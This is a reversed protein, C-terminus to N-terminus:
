RPEVFVAATLPPVSVTRQAADVRASRTMEDASAAQAAMVSKSYPIYM